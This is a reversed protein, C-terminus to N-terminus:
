GILILKDILYSARIGMSRGSSRMLGTPPIIKFVKRARTRSLSLSLAEDENKKQSFDM